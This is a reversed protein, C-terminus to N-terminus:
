RRPRVGARAAPAVLAEVAAPDVPEPEPDIWPARWVLVDDVGPLLAAAPRGRPGVLLVVRDRARGGGPGGPRRAARRGDSDLRAVLVRGGRTRASVPRRRLALEVAALLDRPSRRRRRSRRAAPHGATPVLVARAGAARAAGVDAGIDGIM